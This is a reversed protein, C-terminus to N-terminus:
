ASAEASLPNLSSQQVKFQEIIRTSEDLRRDLPPPNPLSM